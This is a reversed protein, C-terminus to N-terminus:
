QALYLQKVLEPQKMKLIHPHYNARRGKHIVNFPVTGFEMHLYELPTKSHAIVLSRHMAEDPKSLVNIDKAVIKGQWCGSNFSM